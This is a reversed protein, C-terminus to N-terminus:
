SPRKTMRQDRKMIVNDLTALVARNDGGSKQVLHRLAALIALVELDTM